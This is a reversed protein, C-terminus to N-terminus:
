IPMGRKNNFPSRATMIDCQLSGMRQLYQGALGYSVAQAVGLSM